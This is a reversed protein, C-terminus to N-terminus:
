RRGLMGGGFVASGPLLPDDGPRGLDLSGDFIGIAGMAQGVLILVVLAPPISKRAVM